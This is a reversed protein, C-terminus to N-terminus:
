DILIWDVSATSTDSNLIKVVIVDFTTTTKNCVSAIFPFSSAAGDAAVRGAM